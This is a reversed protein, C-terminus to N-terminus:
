VNLSCAIEFEMENGAGEMKRSSSLQAQHFLGEGLAHLFDSLVQDPERGIDRVRGRLILKREEISFGTLYIERPLVQSLEKFIEEWPPEKRQLEQAALALKAQALEPALVSKELQYAGIKMSLTKQSVSLGVKLLVAAVLLTTLTGTLVARQLEAKAAEKLERPLLNLGKGAGLAAGLSPLLSLVMASAAGQLATPAQPIGELPDALAVEM